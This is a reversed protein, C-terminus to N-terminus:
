KGVADRHSRTKDPPVGIKGDFVKDVPFTGVIAIRGTVFRAEPMAVVFFVFRYFGDKAAFARM